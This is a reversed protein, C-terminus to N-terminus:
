YLYYVRCFGPNGNGGPTTNSVLYYRDSAVSLKAQDGANGGTIVFSPRDVPGSYTPNMVSSASYGFYAVPAGSGGAATLVNNGM